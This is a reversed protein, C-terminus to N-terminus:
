RLIPVLRRLKRLFALLKTRRKPIRRPLAEYGFPAPPVTEKLGFAELSKSEEPRSIFESAVESFRPSASSAIEQFLEDASIQPFKRASHYIEALSRLSDRFDFAGNEIALAVLGRRLLEPRNGRVSEVAAAYTYGFFAFSFDSNVERSIARKTESNGAAFMDVLADISAVAQQPLRRVHVFDGVRLSRLPEFLAKVNDTM